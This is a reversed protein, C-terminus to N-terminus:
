RRRKEQNRVYELFAAKDEMWNGAPAPGGRRQNNNNNNRNNGRHRNNNNNGGGFRNNGGGQPPQNGQNSGRMANKREIIEWARLVVSEALFEQILSEVNIGEDRALYKLKNLLQTSLNLSIKGTQENQKDNASPAMNSPQRSNHNHEQDDDNDDDHDKHEHEQDNRVNQNNRDNFTPKSRPDNRHASQQSHQPKPQHQAKQATPQASTSAAEPEPAASAELAAESFEGQEDTDMDEDDVEVVEVAKAKKAVPAKKAKAPSKAPLKKAQKM